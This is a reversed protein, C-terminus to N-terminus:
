GYIFWAKFPQRLQQLFAVSNLLLCDISTWLLIVL